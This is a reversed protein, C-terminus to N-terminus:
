GKDDMQKLWLKIRLSPHEATSKPKHWLEWSIWTHSSQHCASSSTLMSAPKCKNQLTSNNESIESEELETLDFSNSTKFNPASQQKFLQKM